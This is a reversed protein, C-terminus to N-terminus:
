RQLNWPCSVTSGLRWSGMIKTKLGWLKQFVVVAGSRIM